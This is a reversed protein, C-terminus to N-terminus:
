REHDVVIVVPDDPTLRNPREIPRGSEDRWLPPPFLRGYTDIVDGDTRSEIDGDRSCYQRSNALTHSHRRCDEVQRRALPKIPRDGVALM